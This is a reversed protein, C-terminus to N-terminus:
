FGLSGLLDDVQDQNIVIGDARKDVQPGNLLSENGHKAKDPLQPLHDLLVMLLQQEIQHIVDMMRRIVQGTLDQFDQAMMIELLQANTFATHEPVDQLYRRTEAVLIRADALDIPQDFWGDWRAKLARAEAALQNQRPQAADVCNLAREAAQATMGIVYNLRERADPIAQAAQTISQELGLQKLSDRLMRTLQGVRAIIETAPANGDAAHISHLSM